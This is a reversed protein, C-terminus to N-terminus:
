APRLGADCRRRASVVEKAGLFLPPTRRCMCRWGDISIMMTMSDIEIMVVNGHTRYLNGETCIVFDRMMWRDVCAISVMSVHISIVSDIADVSAETRIGEVLDM